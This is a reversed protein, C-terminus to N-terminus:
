AVEAAAPLFYDTRRRRGCFTKVKGHREMSALDMNAIRAVLVGESCINEVAPYITLAFRLSQSRGFDVFHDKHMVVFHIAVHLSTYNVITVRSM